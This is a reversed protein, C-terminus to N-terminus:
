HSRVLYLDFERQPEHEVKRLGALPITGLVSGDLRSYYRMAVPVLQGDPGRGCLARASEFFLLGCVAVGHRGGVIRPVLVADVRQHRVLWDIGGARLARQYALNSTLGDAAIVNLGDLFALIGPRDYVLVTRVGAPFEASAAMAPSGCRPVHFYRM